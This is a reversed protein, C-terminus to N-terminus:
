FPGAPFPVLFLKDGFLFEPFQLFCDLGGWFIETEAISGPFSLWRVRIASRSIVSIRPLKKFEPVLRSM